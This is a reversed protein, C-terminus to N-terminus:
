KRGGSCILALAVKCARQCARGGVGAGWAPALAECTLGGSARLAECVQTWNALSAPASMDVACGLGIQHTSCSHVFSAEGTRRRATRTTRHAPQMEARATRALTRRPTNRCGRQAFCQCGAQRTFNCVDLMASQSSEYYSPTGSFTAFLEFCRRSVM